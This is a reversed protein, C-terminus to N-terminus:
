ISGKTEYKDIQVIAYDRNREKLGWKKLCINNSTNATCNDNNKIYKADIILSMKLNSAVRIQKQPSL